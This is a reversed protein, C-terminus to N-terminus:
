WIEQFMINCCITIGYFSSQTGNKCLKVMKALQSDIEVIKNKAAFINWLKYTIASNFIFLVHTYICEILFWPKKIIITVHAHMCLVIDWWRLVIAM